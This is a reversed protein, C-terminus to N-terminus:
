LAEPGPEDALLDGPQMRHILAIARGSFLEPVAMPMKCLGNILRHILSKNRSLECKQRWGTEISRCKVQRWFAVNAFFEVSFLRIIAHVM